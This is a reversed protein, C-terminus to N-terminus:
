EQSQKLYEQVTLEVINNKSNKLVLIHESNVTYSEWYRPVIKYMTDSNRCLELVTRPTSDWGMVQEGQKVTEVPKISGDFMLINTGISFCGPKGIVIIKQGGQDPNKYTETNPQLLELNLEKIPVNEIIPNQM